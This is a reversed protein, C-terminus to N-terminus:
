APRPRRPLRRAIAAIRAHSHPSRLFAVHAVDAIAIDDTYRGNGASSVSRRAARCARGISGQAATM